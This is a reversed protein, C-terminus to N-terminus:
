ISRDVGAQWEEKLKIIEDRNEIRLNITGRLRYSKYSRIIKLAADHEQKTLLIKECRVVKNILADTQFTSMSRKGM